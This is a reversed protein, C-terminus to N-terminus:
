ARRLVGLMADGIRKTRYEAIRRGVEATATSTPFGGIGSPNLTRDGAEGAKLFPLSPSQPLNAYGDAVLDPRYHLMLSTEWGDAHTTFAPESGGLLGKLMAFNLGEVIPLINRSPALDLRALREGDILAYADLGGIERNAQIVANAMATLHRGGLHGSYLFIRKFGNVKLSRLLDVYLAIFTASGVTLSGPYIYTGDRRDDDGENTIGINLTPGVISPFGADRLYAQVDGLQDIAGLADAGLPLHPGHAEIAGIPVLGIDTKAIAAEFEPFTMELMTRVPMRAPAPPRAMAAGGVLAGLAPAGTLLGIATRRRM